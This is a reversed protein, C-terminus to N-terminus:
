MIRTSFRFRSLTTVSLPSLFFVISMVAVAVMPTVVTVQDIKDRCETHTIRVIKTRGHIM